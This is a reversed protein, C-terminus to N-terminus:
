SCRRAPKGGACPIPSGSSAARASTPRRARGGCHDRSRARASCPEGSRGAKSDNEVQTSAPLPREHVLVGIQELGQEGPALVLATGALTRQVLGRYFIEEAPVSVLLSLVLAARIPEDAAERYADEVHRAFPGWHSAIAVFVRTGIFLAFGSALGVVIAKGVGTTREPAPMLLLAAVGMAGLVFPMLKWVTVRGSSIRWWAVMQAAIGVVIVAARM